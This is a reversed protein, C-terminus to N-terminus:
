KGGRLILTFRGREPFNPDNELRAVELGDLQLKGTDLPEDSPGHQRQFKTIRVSAVGRISQAVDYFPSLFVPQGLAFNDPHFLGKSGDPLLRNSFRELLATKVDSRFYDPRVCAEMELELPVPRPLDVELDHGVMRFRELCQLLHSEYAADASKERFRDVTLFITHWSGTWRSTAAASQLHRDCRHAMAAYDELTVARQQTRFAAPANRRVKEISELLTGGSAPLPSVVLEIVPDAPDGTIAPDASAIHAIADAGINGAPGNGVRYHATMQAGSPPRSGFRDDGFRLYASHDNEIEVVFERKEPGSNLLDWVPEWRDTKGAETLTIRPLAEGPSHKFFSSASAPPRDLDRCPDEWRFPPAYTLPRNEVPRNRPTSQLRPRYRAPTAKPRREECSGAPGAFVKNLAPNSAPVVPLPEGEVSLGHDALVINGWAVSVDDAGPSSICLPFPLADEEHWEIETVPFPTPPSVSSDELLPDASPTVGVLRVAHRHAPDADEARRTQPGKVEQLILVDGPHLDPHDGVLTARVAGKPLCCHLDGWTYFKFENHAARLMIEHMPEFVEPLQNLGTEYAKGDVVLVPDSNVRTLFQTRRGNVDLRLPLAVVDDRVKMRVWVRANRGDHMRYDVLRAHRRISTRRRATRLYAETAVADQQYSLYDAVYALLEVLAVGLDAPVREIWQPTVVALRDFMLQRFSSYDKALYNIESEVHGEPPCIEKSECDFDSPCAVKFSFDVNSLIPDFGAPPRPQERGHDDEHVLRLTYTSFDGPEGVEVMLLTEGPPSPSGLEPFPLSNEGVVEVRTVDIDRIREGGQIVINGASFDDFAIPKLFRIFLRRQRLQTKLTEIEPPDSPVPPGPDFVELFDIGNLSPHAKVTNRRREECCFYKLM